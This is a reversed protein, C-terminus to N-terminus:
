QSIASGSRQWGGGLAKILGVSAQLRRNQVELASRESSLATSQVQIVNLYSVLGAKYQNNTLTVSQRAAQLAADQLAAEQALFYLAALNDEVEQLGSLVTQRYAAVSADYAAMAQASQAKRAGGDFLNQALAPGLSWVRNPVSLWNGFSSSQFGLTASLSLDPFYAAQAVGIQANSSAVRREAAAIDPRRELLGSPLGPPLVPVSAAMNAYVSDAVPLSFDAPAKGLLLAMAHELQARQVRLDVAQAETNKLQTQALLVNERGVTGAAYQNQTLQLSKQYDGITRALLAQQADLMRVTFYNQALQAQTSLKLADLDLGSAKAASQNAEVTARLKGWVDMEWGASAGLNHSTAPERGGASQGRSVSVSAGLTPLQAARAGQVLALAQRYRAEFQALNQNALNVQQELVDLAPDNFVQWWAGRASQDAPQALKWSTDGEKFSAPLAMGPKQYVPMTNCATLLLVAALVSLRLIGTKSEFKM